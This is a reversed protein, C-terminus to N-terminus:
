QRHLFPALARATLQENTMTQPATMFPPQIEPGRNLLDPQERDERLGELMRPTPRPPALVQLAFTLANRPTNLGATEIGPQFNAEQPTMTDLINPTLGPKHGIYAVKRPM